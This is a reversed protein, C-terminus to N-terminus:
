VTNLCQPGIRAHTIDAVGGSANELDRYTISPQAKRGLGFTGLKLSTGQPHSVPMRGVGGEERGGEGERERERARESERERTTATRQLLGVPAVGTMLGGPPPPPKMGGGGPPLFAKNRLLVPPSAGPSAGAAAAGFFAV